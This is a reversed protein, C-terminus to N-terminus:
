HTVAQQFLEADNKSGRIVVVLDSSLVGNKLMDAIRTLDKNTWVAPEVILVAKETVPAFRSLPQIYVRGDNFIWIFGEHTTRMDNRRSLANRIEPWAVDPPVHFVKRVIGHNMALEMAAVEKSDITELANLYRTFCIAVRGKVGSTELVRLLEGTTGASQVEPKALFSRQGPGYRYSFIITYIFLATIGALLFVQKIPM